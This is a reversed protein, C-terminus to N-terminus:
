SGEDRCLIQISNGAPDRTYCRHRGPIERAQEVHCGHTRLNGVFADFDAVRLCFHASKPPNHPDIVVHVQQDGVQFWGGSPRTGEPKELRTLGLVDSYWGLVEEELEEPTTITVHELCLVMDSTM